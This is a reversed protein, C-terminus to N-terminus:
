LRIAVGAKLQFGSLDLGVKEFRPVIVNPNIDSRLGPVLLNQVRYKSFIGWSSTIETLFSNWEGSWSQLIPSQEANSDIVVSRSSSPGTLSTVNRSAYSGEVFVDLFGAMKACIRGGLDASIGTGKGTMASQALSGSQYGSADTFSLRRESQSRCEAFLPGVAVLIELRLIGALPWGFHAALQPTWASAGLLFGSNQYQYSGTRGYEIDDGSSDIIDVKMGVNSQQTRSMFQVGLSLGFTPSLDYRLRVGYPLAYRISNFQADGTRISQVRYADGYLSRYYNFPTVYYYQLYAEEYSAISNLDGAAIKTAGGLFELSFNSLRFPYGEEQAEVVRPFLTVAAFGLVLLLPLRVRAPNDGFCRSGMVPM